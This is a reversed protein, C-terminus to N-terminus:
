DHATNHNILIYFVRTISAGITKYGLNYYVYVNLTIGESVFIQEFVSCIIYKWSVADTNTTSGLAIRYLRPEYTQKLVYSTDKEIILNLKKVAATDCVFTENQYYHRDNNNNNTVVNNNTHGHHNDKALKEFFMSLTLYRQSSIFNKFTDMDKRTIIVRDDKINDATLKVLQICPINIGFRRKRKKKTEYTTTTMTMPKKTDRMIMWSDLFPYPNVHMSIVTLDEISLTNMISGSPIKNLCMISRTRDINRCKTNSFCPAPTPDIISDIAFSVGHKQKKEARTEPTEEEKEEGGEKKERQLIGELEKSRNGVPIISDACPIPIVKLNKRREKFVDEYKKVVVDVDFSFRAQKEDDSMDAEDECYLDEFPRDKIMKLDLDDDKSVVSDLYQNYSDLFKVSAGHQNKVDRTADFFGGSDTSGGNVSLYSEKNPLMKKKNDDNNNFPTVANLKVSRKRRKKPEPEKISAVGSRGKGRGRGRGRSPLQSERNNDSNGSGIDVRRLISKPKLDSENM